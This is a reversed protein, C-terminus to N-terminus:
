SKDMIALSIDAAQRNPKVDHVRFIRVGAAIGLATTATTAGLLETPENVELLSGMFRKRSTGLVVPYGLSVIRDLHALLELNHERTKGFGIGPDLIIRNPKIGSAVAADIRLALFEIVEETVNHYNPKVQMSEPRGQMHMLVIYADFQAVIPFMRVDFSGASVDNIISVGSHLGKEAVVSSQTDLSIFFSPKGDDKVHAMESLRSIVPMIRNLQELPPVSISGPRTSEGGVDVIDAGEKLMAAAHRMADDAGPYCGADSFSDPTVNLIGMILPKRAALLADIDM